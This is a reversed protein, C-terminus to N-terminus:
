SEKIDTVIGYLTPAKTPWLEKYFEALFDDAEAAKKNSMDQIAKHLETMTVPLDM